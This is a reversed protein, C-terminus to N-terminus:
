FLYVRVGVTISAGGFNIDQRIDLNSFTEQRSITGFAYMLDGKLSVSPGLAFELGLVVQPSLAKFSDKQSSKQHQGSIDSESDITRSFFHYGIGAGLYAFANEGFPEKYLLSLSIPTTTWTQTDKLNYYAGSSSSNELALAGYSVDVVAALHKNLDFGLEIGARWSQSMWPMSGGGAKVGLSFRKGTEASASPCFAALGILCVSMGVVFRYMKM